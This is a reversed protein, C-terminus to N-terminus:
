KGYEEGQIIMRFANAATSLKAAQKYYNDAEQDRGDMELEHGKQNIRSAQRRWNDLRLEGLKQLFVREQAEAALRSGEIAQVQKQIMSHIRDPDLSPGPSPEEQPDEKMKELISDVISHLSALTLRGDGADELALRAITRMSGRAFDAESLPALVAESTLYAKIDEKLAYGSLGKDKFSITLKGLQNQNALLTLLMLELERTQDEEQASRRQRRKKDSSPGAQDAQRSKNVLGRRREIEETVARRSIQLEKALQGGYIERRTGDPEAALLDIARDRYDSAPMGIAQDRDYKLLALLYGTRDYTRELAALLRERGLLNLYDDPDKAEQLFLYQAALGAKELIEGSRLSAERGARDSDMLIVVRDVYRGILQAQALTLATGLPAVAHDIGARSLALVDMYGEVLFWFDSGSKVAQPIGFLHKGKQYVLTESSNIYKPGKDELARGGFALVRGSRDIIPFILRHRFFDYYGKGSRQDPRVLGASVMAEDSISKDALWGYLGPGYPPAYGLGYKRYLRRDIGRKKLYDRAERGQPGELQRYFFGAAERLAEYADRQKEFREKWIGDEEEELTLGKRDALFRIAEPYTLHEIEQIFKIVNGGKQCGFCYFIQKGPSVSFSPTKEEHFPCLGFLNLSSKKDLRVYSSVVDVIDNAEIVMEISHRSILGM